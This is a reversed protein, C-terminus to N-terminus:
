SRRNRLRRAFVSIGALAGGAGLLGAGALPLVADSGTFALSGSRPETRVQEVRPRVTTSPLVEPDPVTSPPVTTTTTDDPVTTTTTNEPVTDTTAPPCVAIICNPDIVPGGGDGPGNLDSPDIVSGPQPVTIAPGDGDDDDAPPAPDPLPDIPLHPLVPPTYVPPVLPPISPLVPPVFHPLVPLTVSPIPGPLPTYASASSASLAVGTLGASTALAVAAARRVLSARRRTGASRGVALDTSSAASSSTSTSTSTTTTSSVRM